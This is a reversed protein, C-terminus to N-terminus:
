HIVSTGSTLRKSTSEKQSARGQPSPTRLGEHQHHHNKTGRPGPDGGGGRASDGCPWGSLGEQQRAGRSTCRNPSLDSWGSLCVTLYKERPSHHDEHRTEHTQKSEQPRAHQRAACPGGPPVHPCLQHHCQATPPDKEKEVHHIRCTTRLHWTPTAASIGLRILRPGLEHSDKLKNDNM